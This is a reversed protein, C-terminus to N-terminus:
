QACERYVQDASGCEEAETGGIEAPCFELGCEPCEYRAFEASVMDPIASASARSVRLWAECHPCRVALHRVPTIEHEVRFLV